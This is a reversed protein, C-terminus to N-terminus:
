IQNSCPLFNLTCNNTTANIPNTISPIHLVYTPQSFLGPSSEVCKSLLSTLNSLCINKKVLPHLWPNGQKTPAMCIYNFQNGHNIIPRSVMPFFGILHSPPTTPNFIKNAYYSICLANSTKANYLCIYLLPTTGM